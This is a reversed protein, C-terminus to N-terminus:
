EATVRGAEIADRPAAHDRENQDAYARTGEYSWRLLVDTLETLLDFVADVDRATQSVAVIM